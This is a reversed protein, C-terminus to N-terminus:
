LTSLFTPKESSFLHILDEPSNLVFAPNWPKANELKGYGYAAFITQTGALSGAELDIESDGIMITSSTNVGHRECVKLVPFPSPKKAYFAEAGYIGEFFSEIGFHQLIKDALKQTKNTLVVKKLPALHKLARKVGVFLETQKLCNLEYFARYTRVWEQIQMATARSRILEDFMQEPGRGICRSVEEETFPGLGTGALTRNVQATIDQKSDILTGDLDFILLSM